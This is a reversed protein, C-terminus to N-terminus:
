LDQYPAEQEVIENMNRRFYARRPDMDLFVDIHISM